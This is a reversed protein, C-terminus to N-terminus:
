VGFLRASGVAYFMIYDIIMRQKEEKTCRSRLIDLIGELFGVATAHLFDPHISIERKQSSQNIHQKLHETLFQLIEEKVNEYKTGKSGDILILLAEDFARTYNRSFEAIANRLIAPNRLLEVDQNNKEEENHAHVFHIFNDYVPTTIAYFLEEKSKFYNYFNGITTGAEKAIKRISAREFGQELFAATAKEIIAERVEDKLVQM